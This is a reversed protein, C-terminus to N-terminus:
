SPEASLTREICRRLTDRIRRLSESLAKSTKGMEAAMVEVLENPQYRRIVIERQRQPLKELCARLASDRRDYQASE